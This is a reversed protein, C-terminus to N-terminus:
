RQTFRVVIKRLIGFISESVGYISFGLSILTGVQGVLTNIETVSSLGFFVLAGGVAKLVGEVTSALKQPDVSSSLAGFRKESM